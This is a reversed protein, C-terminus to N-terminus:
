PNINFPFFHYNRWLIMHQPSRNSDGRRPSQLLFGCCKIKISFKHYEHLFDRLIQDEIFTEHIRFHERLSHGGQLSLYVLYVVPSQFRNYPAVEGEFKCQDFVNLQETRIIVRGRVLSDSRYDFLFNNLMLMVIFCLIPM